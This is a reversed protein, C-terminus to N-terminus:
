FWDTSVDVLGWSGPEFECAVSEGQMEVACEDMRRQYEVDFRELARM